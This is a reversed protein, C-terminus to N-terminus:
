LAKNSFKKNLGKMGLRVKGSSKQKSLFWFLRQSKERSTRSLLCETAQLPDTSERGGGWDGQGEQRGAAM